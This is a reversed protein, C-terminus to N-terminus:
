AAEVRYEVCPDLAHVMRRATAVRIERSGDSLSALWNHALGGASFHRETPPSIRYATIRGNEVEAEHVLRGRSCDVWGMGAGLSVARVAEGARAHCALDVLRAMHVRGLSRPALARLAPTEGHRTVLDPDGHALPTQAGNAFPQLFRAAITEGRAIWDRAEGDSLSLFAEASMGLVTHSALAGCAGLTEERRSLANVHMAGDSDPKEGLQAAWGLLVALTHERVIEAALLARLDPPLQGFLALSAAGHQAAGCIAFLHGIMRLAETVQKGILARAMSGTGIFDIACPGQEPVRVTLFPLGKM